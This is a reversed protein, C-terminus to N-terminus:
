MVNRANENKNGWRAAMKFFIEVQQMAMEPKGLKGAMKTNRKSIFSAAINSFTLKVLFNHFVNSNKRM